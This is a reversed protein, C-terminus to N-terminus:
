WNKVQQSISNYQTFINKTENIETSAVEAHLEVLMWSSLTEGIAITSGTYYISPDDFDQFFVYEYGAIPISGGVQYSTGYLNEITPSNTFSAYVVGSASPTGGGISKSTYYGINGLGDVAMGESYGLRGGFSGSVSKGFALTGPILEAWAMKIQEVCPDLFDSFVSKILSKISHGTPDYYRIPNNNCYM